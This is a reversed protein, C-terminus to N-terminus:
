TELTYTLAPLVTSHFLHAWLWLNKTRKVVEELGKFVNWTARKRRHLEPVLDNMM